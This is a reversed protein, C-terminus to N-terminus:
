AVARKRKLAIAAIGIFGTAFLALTGPEPSAVVLPPPAVIPAALVDEAFTSTEPTSQDDSGADSGTDSGEDLSVDSGSWADAGPLSPSVFHPVTANAAPTSADDINSTFSPPSWADFIPASAAHEDTLTPSNFYAANEPRSPDDAENISPTSARRVLRAFALDTPDDVLSISETPHVFHSMTAYSGGGIAGLESAWYLMTYESAAGADGDSESRLGHIQSNISQATANTTPISVAATVVVAVVLRRIM